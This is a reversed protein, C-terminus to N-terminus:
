QTRAEAAPVDPSSGIGYWDIKRTLYMIAALAVWLAISGFLMAYNEARLTMYLFGYLVALVGFMTVARRGQGLVAQSYGTILGSSAAASVLYALGFGIHESLSLLLLFFLANALGVLLYQLPHLKLRTLVEFLFWAVFTLSIFLVAYTTARLIVRYLNIATYLEVGFSNGSILETGIRGNIWRQPLPRGISSVRWEAQFGNDDITRKAPLYSGFFSPSAWSSRMTVRTTDGYPLFALRQSGNLELQMSFDLNIVGDPSTPRSPLVAAIQPPMGPVQESVPAFRISTGNITVEPTQQIARPDSVALALYARDWTIDDFDIGLDDLDQIVFDGSIATSTSYVAVKHVGRYREEPMLVADVDLRDPLVFAHGDDVVTMGYDLSRRTSYPLVLVPGAITQAHGWAQKIDQEAQVRNVVRDHVVGKIMGVPILMVLILVAITVAKATVSNRWITKLRQM